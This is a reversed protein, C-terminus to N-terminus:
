RMLWVIVAAAALLLALLVLAPTALKLDTRSPLSAQLLAATIWAHACYMPWSASRLFAAAWCLAVPLLLLPALAIPMARLRGVRFSVSGLRWGRETRVPLLSPFAPRAGLLLAVLFHALEHALTGPLAVLAYIWMGAHKSLSIVVAAALIFLVDMPSLALILADIWGGLWARTAEM